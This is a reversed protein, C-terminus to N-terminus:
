LGQAAHHLTSHEVHSPLIPTDGDCELHSRVDGAISGALTGHELQNLITLWLWSHSKPCLTVAERVFLGHHPREADTAKRTADLAISRVSWAGEDDFSIEASGDVPAAEFGLDTVLPLECFNFTFTAM